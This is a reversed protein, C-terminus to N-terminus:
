RLIGMRGARRMESSGGAEAGGRGQGESPSSGIGKRTCCWEGGEEGVVVM